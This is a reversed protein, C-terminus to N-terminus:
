NESQRALFSHLTTRLEPPLDEERLSKLLSVTSRYTRVQSVCSPCRSLHEDLEARVAPLLRGELYDLLLTVVRSCPRM